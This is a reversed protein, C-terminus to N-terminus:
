VSGVSILDALMQSHLQVCLIVTDREKLLAEKSLIQGCHLLRLLRPNLGQLLSHSGVWELIRAQLIGHVSSGPPSCDMPDCVTPCSQTVLVKM